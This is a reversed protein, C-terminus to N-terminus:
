IKTRSTLFGAMTQNRNSSKTRLTDMEIRTLRLNLVESKVDLIDTDNAEHIISRIYASMTVKLRKSERRLHQKEKPTLKISYRESLRAQWQKKM